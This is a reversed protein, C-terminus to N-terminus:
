GETKMVVMTRQNGMGAVGSNDSGGFPQSRAELSAAQSHDARSEARCLDM